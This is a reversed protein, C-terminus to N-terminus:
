HSCSSIIKSVLGESMQGYNTWPSAHGVAFGSAEFAFPKAMTSAALFNPSLGICQNLALGIGAAALAYHACDCLDVLGMFSSADGIALVTVASVFVRKATQICNPRVHLVSAIVGLSGPKDMVASTSDRVVWRPFIKLREAIPSQGVSVRFREGQLAVVNVAIVLGRIAGEFCSLLLGIISPTGDPKSWGKCDTCERLSM